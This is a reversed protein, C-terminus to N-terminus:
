ATPDTVKGMFLVSGTETDQIIFIFPHDARFQNPMGKLAVIVATAAAAETGEEDVRVFAQHIVDTIMLDTTGDMGSLDADMSFATPMGMEALNQTLFYKTELEFKPIYIDIEQERLSSRWLNLNEPTLSEELEEMKGEEPLLVLMSVQDGEYPMELVQLDESWYYNFEEDPLYMMEVEVTRNGGLKFDQLRTDEKDFQTIWTGKFYIANTLVLRTLPTLVGPPIIDKIRDNTKEEVWDNITVRSKETEGVFDLNTVESYYNERVTDIYTNLFPYNQQAWLANATNLEYEASPANIHSILQAFSNRRIMDDEPFHLVSQMEDATQGRAGEYTMALATSISFPSFFMNGGDDKLEAYLEFAFQNNADVLTQLEDTSVLTTTTTTTTTGNPRICGSALVIALVLLAHIKKM